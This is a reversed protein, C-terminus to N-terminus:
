IAIALQSIMFDSLILPTNDYIDKKIIEKHTATHMCQLVLSQIHSEEGYLSAPNSTVNGGSYNAICSYNGRDTVNVGIIMLTSSNAGQIHGPRNILTSSNLTWTYNIMSFGSAECTFTVNDNVSAVQDQPHTTFTVVTFTYM